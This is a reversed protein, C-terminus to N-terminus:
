NYTLRRAVKKPRPRPSPPTFAAAHFAGAALSVALAWGLSDCVGNAYVFFLTLGAALAVRKNQRFRRGGLTFTEVHIKLMKCVAATCLASLLLGPFWLVFGSFIVLFLAGYNRSFREWNKQMRQVVEEASMPVSIKRLDFFQGWPQARLRQARWWSANSLLFLIRAITEM